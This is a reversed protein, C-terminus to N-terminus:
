ARKPGRKRRGGLKGDLEGDSADLEHMLAQFKAADFGPMQSLYALVSQLLLAQSALQDAMAEIHEALALTQKRGHKFAAGVNSALRQQHSALAQDRGYSGFFMGAVSMDQRLDSVSQAVRRRLRYAKLQEKNPLKVPKSSM